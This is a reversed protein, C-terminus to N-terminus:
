FYVLILHNGWWDYEIRNDELRSMLLERDEESMESMNLMTSSHADLGKEYFENWMDMEDYDMKILLKSFDRHDHECAIGYQCDPQRRKSAIHVVHNVCLKHYYGCNMWPCRNGMVCWRPKEKQWFSITGTLSM